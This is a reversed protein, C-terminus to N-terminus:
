HPDCTHLQKLCTTALSVDLADHLFSQALLEPSVYRDWKRRECSAVQDILQSNSPLNKLLLTLSSMWGVMDGNFTFALHSRDPTAAIEGVQLMLHLTRMARSGTWPFWMTQHVGCSVLNSSHLGAQAAAIRADALLKAAMSDLYDPVKDSLLVERM